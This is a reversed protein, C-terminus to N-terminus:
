GTALHSEEATGAHLAGRLSRHPVTIGDACAGRPGRVVPAACPGGTVPLTSALALVSDRRTRERGPMLLYLCTM